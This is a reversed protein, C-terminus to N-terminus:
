QANTRPAGFGENQHRLVKTEAWKKADAQRFRFRSNNAILMASTLLRKGVGPRKTKKRGVMIPNKLVFQIIVYLNNECPQYIAHRINSYLVSMGM